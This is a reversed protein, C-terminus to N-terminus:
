LPRLQRALLSQAAYSNLVRPCAALSKETHEHAWKRALPLPQPTRQPLPKRRRQVARHTPEFALSAAASTLPRCPCSSSHYRCRARAACAALPAIRSQAFGSHFAGVNVPETRGSVTPVLRPEGRTSLSAPLPKSASCSPVPWQRASSCILRASACPAASPLFNNAHV